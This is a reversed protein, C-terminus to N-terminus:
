KIKKIEMQQCDYGARYIHTEIKDQKDMFFEDIAKKVGPCYPWDYDDFFLIGGKVLKPYFFEISSKTTDYFDGDVHVFSFVEDKLSEATDPFFGPFFKCNPKDSLYSRVSELSTDGFEGKKHPEDDQETEPMGEFTDFLLLDRDDLMSAIRRASGGKYVGVEAAKGKIEKVKKLSEALLSLKWPGLESPNNGSGWLTLRCDEIAEKVMEFTIEKSCEFHRDTGEHKPCWNWNGKDFKHDTSNWCGHCVNTNIVRYPTYFEESPLSFGAILVVPKKLAWALWSMGSGLGVFFECHQMWKAAEELNAAAPHTVNKLGKLDMWDLPEKQLVIVKYGLNNLYDVTKQWGSENHWHKLGATSATSICVYKEEIPRTREITELPPRLEKKELGLIDPATNQLSMKRPDTPNLNKDEWDGFWGLKYSAYVDVIENFSIFKIDPYIDQFFSNHFTKCFMECGHKKRFEEVYPIWAITDGISKSEFEILVPKGKANFTEDYVIQGNTDRMLIRWNVFTKKNTEAWQNYGITTQYEYGFKKSIGNETYTSFFDVIYRANEDCHLDSYIDCRAGNNFSATIRPPSFSTEVQTLGFLELVKEVSPHCEFSEKSELCEWLAPMSQISDHVKLSYKPNSACAIDCPGGVYTYKYDQRGNRYPARFKYNISSGLQIIETDTTGALHLIGTDMTIVHSAKDLVHWTQSLSLENTLDLVQESYEQPIDLSYIPKSGGWEGPEKKNETKGLIILNKGAKVFGELLAQWKSKDWTRSQWTESPHICIYNDFLTIEEFPDPHFDCYMEENTLDFGLAVAYYRRIDFINHKLMILQQKQSGEGKTYFESLGSEHIHDYEDKNFNTNARDIIKEIYPNNKLISPRYTAVDIKHGYSNCLKRITPTTCLNDGLSDSAIILLTSM